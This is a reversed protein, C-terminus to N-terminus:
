KSVRFRRCWDARWKEGDLEFFPIAIHRQCFEGRKEDKGPLCTLRHCSNRHICYEPALGPSLISFDKFNPNIL